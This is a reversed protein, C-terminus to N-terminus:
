FRDLPMEEVRRGSQREGNLDMRLRGLCNRLPKGKLIRYMNRIEKM